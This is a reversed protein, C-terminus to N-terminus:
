QSHEAAIAQLGERAEKVRGQLDPDAKDWLRLFRNYAQAASDREGGLEYAHGLALYTLPLYL